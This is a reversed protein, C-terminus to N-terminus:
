DGNYLMRLQTVVQDSPFLNEDDKICFPEGNVVGMAFVYGSDQMIALKRTNAAGLEEWDMRMCLKAWPTNRRGRGRPQAQAAALGYGFADVAHGGTDDVSHLPSAAKMMAEAKAQQMLQQIATNGDGPKLRGQRMAEVLLEIQQKIAEQVASMQM